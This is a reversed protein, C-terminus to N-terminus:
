RRAFADTAMSFLATGLGNDSMRVVLEGTVVSVYVLLPLNSLLVSITATSSLPMASVLSPVGASQPPTEVPAACLLLLPPSRVAAPSSAMGRLYYAVVLERTAADDEM